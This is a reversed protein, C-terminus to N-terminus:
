KWISFPRDDTWLLARERRQAEERRQREEVMRASGSFSVARARTSTASRQAHKLFLYVAAVHACIQGHQAAPCQCQICGDTKTLLYYTDAQSRNPVLWLTEGTDRRTCPIPHLKDRQAIVVARSLPSQNTHAM